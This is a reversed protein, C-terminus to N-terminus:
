ASQGPLVLRELRKQRRAAEALAATATKTVRVGRAEGVLETLADAPLEELTPLLDELKSSRHSAMSPRLVAHLRSWGRAGDRRLTTTWSHWGHNFSLEVEELADGADELLQERWAVVSALGTTAGLRRVRRGIKTSLVWRYASAPSDYDDLQLETVTPVAALDEIAEREESTFEEARPADAGVGTLAPLPARALERLARTGLGGVFRLGRMVPHALLERALSPGARDDTREMLWLREVTAWAPDGALAIAKPPEVAMESPFGLRFRVRDGIVVPALRGLWDTAHAELLARERKAEADTPLRDRTALQLAILEGRPDGREALWDGYVARAEVDGPHELIRALLEEGSAGRSSLAAEVAECGAEADPPLAPPGDSYQKVLKEMAKTAMGSLTEAAWQQNDFAGLFDHAALAGPARPDGTAALAKFLRRWVKHSASSRYPPDRLLGMAAELWRPDRAWAPQAELADLLAVADDVRLERFLRLVRPLDRPAGATVLALGETLRAKLTKGGIPPLAQDISASLAEVLAAIRASPLARWAALLAALAEEKADRGLASQARELETRITSM